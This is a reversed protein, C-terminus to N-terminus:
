LHLSIHVKEHYATILWYEAQLNDGKKDVGIYHLIDPHDMRPLRFIEQEALWSQKDQLPFVKVAVDRQGLKARWVAGFRGRARVECLNLQSVLGAGENEMGASASPPRSLSVEGNALEAFSTEKRRRYLFYCAVLVVFLITLPTLTYVIIATTDDEPTPIPSAPVKEPPPETSLLSRLGKVGPFTANENCMDGECCCHLLPLKAYHIRCSTPRDNCAVTDLFCGKVKIVATNTVNDYQWLVFCHTSKDNEAPPCEEKQVVPVCQTDNNSDCDM